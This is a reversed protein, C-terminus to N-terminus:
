PLLRGAYWGFTYIQTSNPVARNNALVALRDVEVLMSHLKREQADDFDARVLTGAELQALNSLIFGEREFLHRHVDFYRVLNEIRRDRLTSVSNFLFVFLAIVAAGVTALDRM